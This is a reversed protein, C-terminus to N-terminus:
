IMSQFGNLFITQHYGKSGENIILKILSCHCTGAAFKSFFILVYSKGLPDGWLIIIVM